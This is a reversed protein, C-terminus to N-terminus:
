ASVTPSPVTTALSLSYPGFSPAPKVIEGSRSFIAASPLRKWSMFYIRVPSDGGRVAIQPSARWESKFCGSVVDVKLLYNGHTFSDDNGSCASRDALGMATCEVVGLSLRECRM